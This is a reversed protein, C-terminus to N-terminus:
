KYKRSLILIQLHYIDEKTIVILMSSMHLLFNNEQFAWNKRVDCSNWYMNVHSSSTNSKISERYWLLAQLKSQRNGDDSFDCSSNLFMRGSNKLRFNIQFLQSNHRCVELKEFKRETSRHWFTEGWFEENLWVVCWFM